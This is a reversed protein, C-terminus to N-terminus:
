FVFETESQSPRVTFLEPALEELPPVGLGVRQILEFIEKYDDDDFFANFVFPKVTYYCCKKEKWLRRIAIEWRKPNMEATQTAKQYETDAEQLYQSRLSYYEEKEKLTKEDNMDLREQKKSGNLIITRWPEPSDIDKAIVNARILKRAWNRMTSDDIDFGYERLIINEKTLWPSTAFDYDTSLLYFVLAFGRLNTQIDLNLKKILLENLREEPTAPVKTILVSSSKYEYEYGWKDLRNKVDRAFNRSKPNLAMIEAIEARPYSRKEFRYVSSSM